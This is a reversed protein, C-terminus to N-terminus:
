NGDFLDVGVAGGCFEGGMIQEEGRVFVADPFLAEMGAYPVCPSKGHLADPDIATIKRPDFAALDADYGVAIRGKRVSFAAAPSASGMRSLLALPFRGRKVMAMFIPVLVGVGPMGSPADGYERSKESASHPAHDSGFMTAKGATVAAMLGARTGDPRLPPNVKYETGAAGADFLLHHATVESAFGLARCKDLTAPDTVHCVNIPMGKYRALRSVASAEAASPRNRLHDANSSERDGGIMYQDEAHVSVRKGTPAVASMAAYIGADDPLLINGTTSAMFLKFGAVHPALEAARVKPTMAVFLGYDVHSRGRIKRKKESLQRTGTVPPSTNPMDLVCTVGAHLAAMSGTGFDEKHTLGPDRFHVHPDVFGPLVIMEGLDIRESGRVINGVTAIRGDEIGVATSKLEGNILFRGEVVLDM